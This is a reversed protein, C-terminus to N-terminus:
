KFVPLTLKLEFRDLLLKSVQEVHKTRRVDDSVSNIFEVVDLPILSDLRERIEISIEFEDLIQDPLLEPDESEELLIKRSVLPFELKNVFTLSVLSQWLLVIDHFLKNFRIELELSIFETIKKNFYYQPFNILCIKKLVASLALVTVNIEGASKSYEEIIETLSM